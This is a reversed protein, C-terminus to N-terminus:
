AQLYYNRLQEIDLLTGPCWSAAGDDDSNESYGPIHLAKACAKAASPDLFPLYNMELSREVVAAPSSGALSVLYLSDAAKCRAREATANAFTRRVWDVMDAADDM